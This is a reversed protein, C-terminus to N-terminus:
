HALIIQGNSVLVQLCSRMSVTGCRSEAWTGLMAGDQYGSHRARKPIKEVLASIWFGSLLTGQLFNELGNRYEKDVESNFLRRSSCILSLRRWRRWRRRRRRWRRRQQKMPHEASKKQTFFSLPTIIMSPFSEGASNWVSAKSSSSRNCCPPIEKIFIKSASKSISSMDCRDCKDCIFALTSYYAWQRYLTGANSLSNIQPLYFQYWPPLIM